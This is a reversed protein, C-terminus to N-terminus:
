DFYLEYGWKKAFSELTKRIHKNAKENAAQSEPANLNTRNLTRNVDSKEWLWMRLDKLEKIDSSIEKLNAESFEGSKIKPFLEELLNEAVITTKVDLNWEYRENKSSYEQNWYFEVDVLVKERHTPNSIYYVM